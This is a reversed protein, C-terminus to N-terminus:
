KWDGMFACYGNVRLALDYHAKPFPVKQIILERRDKASHTELLKKSLQDWHDMDPIDVAIDAFRYVEAWIIASLRIVHKSM